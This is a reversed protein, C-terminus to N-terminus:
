NEEVTVTPIPSSQDHDLDATSDAKSGFKLSEMTPPSPSPATLMMPSSYSLMASARRHKETEPVSKRSAPPTIVNRGFSPTEMNDANANELSQRADFEKFSEEKLNAM